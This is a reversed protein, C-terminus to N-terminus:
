RKLAEDGSVFSKAAPPRTSSLVHEFRKPAGIQKLNQEKPYLLKESNEFGFTVNVYRLQFLQLYMPDGAQAPFRHSPFTRGITAPVVSGKKGSMKTRKKCMSMPYGKLKQVVNKHSKGNFAANVSVVASGAPVTQVRLSPALFM